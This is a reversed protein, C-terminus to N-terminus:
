SASATNVLARAAGFHVINQEPIPSFNTGTITVQTGAPGSGPSFNTISPIQAQVFSAFAICLSIFTAIRKM